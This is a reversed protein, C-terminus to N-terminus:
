ITSAMFYLLCSMKQGCISESVINSCAIKFFNVAPPTPPPPIGETAIHADVRLM